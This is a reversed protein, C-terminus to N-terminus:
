TQKCESCAGSLILYFCNSDFTAKLPTSDLTYDLIVKKAFVNMSNRLTALFYTLQHGTWSICMSEYGHIWCIMINLTPLFDGLLLWKYFCVFVSSNSHYLFWDKYIITCTSGESMFLLRRRVVHGKKRTTLESNWWIIM